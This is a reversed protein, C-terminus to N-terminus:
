FVLCLFRTDVCEVMVQSVARAEARGEARGSPRGALGPGTKRAREVVKSRSYECTLSSCSGSRTFRTKGRRQWQPRVEPAPAAVAVAAAGLTVWGRKCAAAPRSLTTRTAAMPGPLTVCSSRWRRRRRSGRSFVLSTITGTARIDLTAHNVCRYVSGNCYLVVTSANGCGM